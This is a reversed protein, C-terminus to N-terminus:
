KLDLLTGDEIERNVGYNEDMLTSELQPGTVLKKIDCSDEALCLHYGDERVAIKLTYYEINNRSFTSKNIIGSSKRDETLNSSWNELTDCPSLQLKFIEALEKESYPNNNKYSTFAFDKNLAPTSQNAFAPHKIPIM